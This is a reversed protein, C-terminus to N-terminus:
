SRRPHPAKIKILDWATEAREFMEEVTYRAGSSHATNLVFQLIFERKEVAEECEKHISPHGECACMM